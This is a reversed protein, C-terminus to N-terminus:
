QTAQLDWTEEMLQFVQLKPKKTVRFDYIM